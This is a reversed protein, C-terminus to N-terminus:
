MNQGDRVGFFVDNPQGAYAPKPLLGFRNLFALAGQPITARSAESITVFGTRDLRAFLGDSCEAPSSVARGLDCEGDLSTVPELCLMDASRAVLELPEHPAEECAVVTFPVLAFM